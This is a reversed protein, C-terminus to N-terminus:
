VILFNGANYPVWLNIVMNVVDGWKGRNQVMENWDVGESGTEKIILKINGNWRRRPRGLPRKM